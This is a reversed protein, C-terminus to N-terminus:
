YSWNQQQQTQNYGPYITPLVTPMPTPTAYVTSTTLIIITISQSPTATPVPVPQNYNDERPSVLVPSQTPKPTVAVPLECCTQKGCSLTLLTIVPLISLLKM